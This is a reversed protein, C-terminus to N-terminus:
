TFVMVFQLFYSNKLILLDSCSLRFCQGSQELNCFIFHYLDLSCSEAGAGKSFIQLDQTRLVLDTTRVRAICHGTISNLTDFGLGVELCVPTLVFLAQIFFSSLLDQLVMLTSLM